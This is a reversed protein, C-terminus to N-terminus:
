SVPFGEKGLNYFKTVQVDNVRVDEPKPLDLVYGSRTHVVRANRLDRWGWNEDMYTKSIGVLDCLDGVTAVGRLDRLSILHNLAEEAESRSAFM